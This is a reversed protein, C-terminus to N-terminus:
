KMEEVKFRVDDVMTSAILYASDSDVCPIILTGDVDGTARHIVKFIFQKM